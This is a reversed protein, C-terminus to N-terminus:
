RVNIGTQLDEERELLRAGLGLMGGAFCTLHELTSSYMGWQQSHSVDASARTYNLLSVFFSVALGITSLDDRGPIVKVHRILHEYASDTAEAYM